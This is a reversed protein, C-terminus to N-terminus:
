HAAPGAAIQAVQTALAVGLVYRRAGWGIYANRAHPYLRSGPRRGISIVVPIFFILGIAIMGYAIWGTLYPIDIRFDMAVAAIARQWLIPPLAAAAIFGVLGVIRATRRDLQDAM